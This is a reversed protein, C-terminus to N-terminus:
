ELGTENVDSLVEISIRKTDSPLSFEAPNEADNWCTLLYKIRCWIHQLSRKRWSFTIHWLEKEDLTRFDNIELSMIRKPMTTSLRYLVICCLM